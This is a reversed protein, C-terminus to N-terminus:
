GARPPDGHTAVFSVCDGQNRFAGFARWGDRKCQDKSTPLPPADIVSIDGSLVVGTRAPNVLPSCDDPDGHFAASAAITDPMGRGANDTVQFVVVFRAGLNFRAVNGTVALCNVTGSTAGEETDFSAIGTPNEGSPGSHADIDFLGFFSAVGHGTVADGATAQGDAGAPAVLAAAAALLAALWGSRRRM